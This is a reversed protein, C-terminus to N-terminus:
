VELQQKITDNKAQLAFKVTDTQNELRLFQEIFKEFNMTKTSVKFDYGLDRLLEQTKTEYSLALFPVAHVFALILSHLRM